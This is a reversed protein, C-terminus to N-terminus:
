NRGGGPQDHAPHRVLADKKSNPSPQDRPTRGNWWDSTLDSLSASAFPRREAFGLVPKCEANIVARHNNGAVAIFREGVTRLIYWDNCSPRSDRFNTVGYRREGQGRTLGSAFSIIAFTLLSAVILDVTRSTKFNSAYNAFLFSVLFAFPNSLESYPIRQDLKLSIFLYFLCFLTWLSLIFLILKLFSSNSKNAADIINQDGSEYARTIASKYGPKFQPSLTILPIIIGGLYTWFLESVSLGFLDSAGFMMGINAGFGASYGALYIACTSIHIIPVAIAFQGISKEIDM